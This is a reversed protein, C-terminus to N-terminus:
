SSINRSFHQEYQELSFALSVRTREQFHHPAHCICSHLRYLKFSQTNFLFTSHLIQVPAEALRLFEQGLRLYSPLLELGQLKSPFSWTTWVMVCLGPVRPSYPAPLLVLMGGEAWCASVVGSGSGCSMSLSPFHPTRTVSASVM